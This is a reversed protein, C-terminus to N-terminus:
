TRPRFDEPRRRSSALRFGINDNRNAPGNNNRNDARLNGADKNNFSGGRM